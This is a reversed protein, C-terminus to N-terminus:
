ANFRSRSPSPADRNQCSAPHRCQVLQGREGYVLDPLRVTKPSGRRRANTARVSTESFLWDGSSWPVGIAVTDYDTDDSTAPVFPRTRRLMRWARIWEKPMYGQGPSPVALILVGLM